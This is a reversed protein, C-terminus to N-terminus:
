KIVLDRVSFRVYYKGTRNMTVRDIEETVDIRCELVFREVADRDPEEGKKLRRAKGSGPDPLVKEPSKQKKPSLAELGGICLKGIM